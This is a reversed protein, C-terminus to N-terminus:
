SAVRPLLLFLRCADRCVLLSTCAYEVHAGPVCATPKLSQLLHCPLPSGHDVTVMLPLIQLISCAGVKKGEPTIEYETVDELVM